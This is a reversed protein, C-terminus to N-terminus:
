SVKFIVAFVTLFDNLLRFSCDSTFNINLLHREGCYFTFAERLRRNENTNKNLKRFSDVVQESRNPDFMQNLQLNYSNNLYKLFNDSLMNVEQNFQHHIRHCLHGSDLQDCNWNLSIFLCKRTELLFIKIKRDWFLLICNEFNLFNYYSITKLKGLYEFYQFVINHDFLVFFLYQKWKIEKIILFDTSFKVEMGLEQLYNKDLEMREKKQFTSFNLM